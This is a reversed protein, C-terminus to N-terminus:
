DSGQTELLGDANIENIVIFTVLQSIKNQKTKM